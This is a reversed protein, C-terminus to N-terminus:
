ADESLVLVPHGLGGEFCLLVWTLRLGEAEFLSLLSGMVGSTRSGLDLGSEVTSGVRGGGAISM